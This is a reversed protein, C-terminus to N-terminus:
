PRITRRFTMMELGTAWSNVRAFGTLHGDVPKLDTVRRLKFLEGSLQVIGDQADPRIVVEGAYCRENCPNVV